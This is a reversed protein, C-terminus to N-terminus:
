RNTAGSLAQGRPNGFFLGHPSSLAIVDSSVTGNDPENSFSIARSCIRFHLANYIQKVVTGKGLQVIGTVNEILIAKPKLTAAVRLFDKFLHNREDDLTRVPANVSFGQCSPGGALLGLEGVKLDLTQRLDLECVQRIDGVIVKVDPNNTKYTEAYQEVIENALISQSGEM